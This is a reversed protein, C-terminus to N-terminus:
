ASIGLAHEVAIQGQAMSGPVGIVVYVTGQAIDGAAYLGEIPNNHTDLVRSNDDTLLSNMTYIISPILECAYFPPEAVRYLSSSLRGFDTDEGAEALENYRSITEELAAADVQVTDGWTNTSVMLTALEELTDAKLLWGKEVEAQNDESWTFGHALAWTETITSGGLRGEAIAASDWIGWMPLNEYGNTEHNPNVAFPGYFDLFEPQRKNHTISGTENMFRKGKANVILTGTYSPNMMVVGTGLEESAKRCAFTHWEVNQALNAPQAGIEIAMLMGDGTRAPGAMPAYALAPHNLSHFLDKNAEYGGSTLVVGKLAHVIIETGNKQARVGIVKGTGDQILGTAPTEYEISIGPTNTVYEVIKPHVAAGGYVSMLMDGSGFNISTKEFDLNEARKSWGLAKNATNE